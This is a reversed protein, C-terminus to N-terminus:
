NHINLIICCFILVTETINNKDGNIGVPQDPYQQNTFFFLIVKNLTPTVQNLTCYTIKKDYLMAYKFSCSVM